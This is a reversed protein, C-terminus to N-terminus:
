ESEDRSCEEYEPSERIYYEQEKSKLLLLTSKITKREEGRSGYLGVVMLKSTLDEKMLEERSWKSIPRSLVTSAEIEVEYPKRLMPSEIISKLTIHTKGEEVTETENKQSLAIHTEIKRDKSKENTRLTAGFSISIATGNEVRSLASKLIQRSKSKMTCFVLKRECVHEAETRPLGEKEQKELCWKKEVKCFQVIESDQKREWEYMESKCKSVSEPAFEECAQQIKEKVEENLIRITAEKQQYHHTGYGVTLHLDLEKVESTTPNHLLQLNTRKITTLPLPLLGGYMLPINIKLLEWMNYTDIPLEETEMKLKIDLGLPKGVTVEKKLEPTRSRITKVNRGKILVEFNSLSQVTTFPHIDLEVLPQERQYEPEKTQKLTVYVQGKRYSAEGRVPMAIHLSTEVGLSYTKKTIESYVGATILKKLNTVSTSEFEVKPEFTNKSILKVEGKLQTVAPTRITFYAPMGSETPVIYNYTYLDLIKFYESKLGEELRRTETIESVENVLKQVIEENISYLKELGLMRITLHAEPKTYKKEHVGLKTMTDVVEREASTSTEEPTVLESYIEILKSIVTETGHMHFATELTEIKSIPTLLEAKSYLTPPLFSKDTSTWKLAHSVMTRLSEVFSTYHYYRSYQYGDKVPKAMPLILKAKNRLREYKPISGSLKTLSKLTSHILSVIERSPEFWTRLALKQLDASSPHSLVLGYIARTKVEIDEAPNEIISLFIPKYISPKMIAAKYLSYVAVSRPYSETTIRGDIIKLLEKSTEEAGINGLANIYTILTNVDSESESMKQSLYPILDTKIVPLDKHCMQGYIKYPFDNRMTIPNVCAKHILSTLGMAYAARILRSREIHETKLLEVLEEILEKTPTKITRLTNSIIWAWTEPQEVVVGSKIKEKVLMVCPNTGTMSVLDFFVKEAINEYEKGEFRSKITHEVEKLNELSLQGMITTVPVTLGAIGM